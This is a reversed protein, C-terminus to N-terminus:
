EFQSAEFCAHRVLARLQAERTAGGAKVSISGLLKQDGSRVGVLNLSLGKPLVELRPRLVIAVVHPNQQDIVTAGGRRLEDRLQLEFQDKLERSEPSLGAPRSSVVVYVRATPAAALVAGAFLVVGVGVSGRM